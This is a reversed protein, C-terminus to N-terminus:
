KLFIHERIDQIDVIVGSNTFYVFLPAAIYCKQPHGQKFSMSPLM